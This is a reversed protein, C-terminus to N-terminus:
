LPLDQPGPKGWEPHRCWAPFFKLPALDMPEVELGRVVQARILHEQLRSPKSQRAFFPLQRLLEAKATELRAGYQERTLAALRAEGIAFTKRVPEQRRAPSPDAPRTGQSRQQTEFDAAARSAYSLIAGFHQIDFSTEKASDAAYRIIFQTQEFGHQALLSLAQGLEKSQAEHHEVGHVIRHFYKVLEAAQETVADKRKTYHHIVVEGGSESDAAAPLVAPAAVKRFVTKYDLGDVTKQISAVKLMGTSLRVGQLEAVANKLARYREYQRNYEPNQLGLDQFLDKTRREYNDKRALMLDVHVYLLQAIESKLNLITDLFLPKTYNGLLNHLIRDDAKFYGVARNVAGDVEREVIKLESLITFPTRERLVTKGEETRQYYSNIWEIPITRLKRLSKVISDRVNTGWSKKLVRAILRDSFFVPRDPPKGSEEWLHTLAYYMRQDETTLTGLHTYGVEVRSVVSSGDGSTVQREFVRLAKESKSKAPQWIAPWKELNLEARVKRARPAGVNRPQRRNIAVDSRTPIAEDPQAQSTTM